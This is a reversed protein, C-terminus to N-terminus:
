WAALCAVESRALTTSAYCVPNLDDSTGHEYLPAARRLLRAGSPLQPFIQKVLEEREEQMDRFTSSIFVRIERQRPQKAPPM